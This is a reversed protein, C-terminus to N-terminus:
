AAGAEAELTSVYERTQDSYPSCAGPLHGATRQCTWAQPDMHKLGCVRRSAQADVDDALRRLTEALVAPHGFLTVTTDDGGLVVWSTRPGEHLTAELQPPEHISVHATVRDNM